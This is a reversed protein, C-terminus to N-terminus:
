WPYLSRSLLLVLLGASGAAAIPLRPDPCLAVERLCCALAILVTGLLTILHATAHMTELFLPAGAAQYM